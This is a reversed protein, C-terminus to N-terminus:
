IQGYSHNVMFVDCSHHNQVLVGTNDVEARESLELGSTTGGALRFDLDRHGPDRSSVRGFLRLLFDDVSKGESHCTRDVGARVPYWGDITRIFATLEGDVCAAHDRNVEEGRVQGVSALGEGRKDRDRVHVIWRFQPLDEIRGIGPGDDILNRTSSEVKIRQYIGGYSSGGV